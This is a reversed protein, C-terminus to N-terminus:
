EKPNVKNWLEQLVEKMDARVFPALSDQSSFAKFRLDVLGQRREFRETLIAKSEFWELRHGHLLIGIKVLSIVKCFLVLSSPIDM